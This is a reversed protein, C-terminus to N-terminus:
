RDAVGRLARVRPLLARWLAYRWRSYVFDHAGIYRITRGGFGRKFHYVGWLNRSGLDSPDGDESRTPSPRGVEDPIGWFDYVRCGRDRAWRIAEWQLLDSPKLNRQASASGGYMYYARDGMTLVLAASLPEGAHRAVFLHAQGAPALTRWLDRFYAAPRIPFHSRESTQRLLDYFADLGSEDSREVVVGRRAALGVNYRTRTSLGAALERSDARLDLLITTRPQVAESPRFGLIQLREFARDDTWEPEIKLCFAGRERALGHLEELFDPSLSEHGAAVVPGRPVYAIPGVPTQKVLLQAGAILVGGRQQAVRSSKWGTRAKFEGWQYSQLISGGTATAILGDWSEGDQVAQGGLPGGTATERATISLEM